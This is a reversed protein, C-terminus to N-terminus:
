SSTTMDVVSVWRQAKSFHSIPPRYVKVDTIVWAYCTKYGLARKIDSETMMHKHTTDAFLAELDGQYKQNALETLNICDFFSVQCRVSAHDNSAKTQIVQSPGLSCQMSRIEWEKGGEVYIGNDDEQCIKDAADKAVKIGRRSDDAVRKKGVRKKGM